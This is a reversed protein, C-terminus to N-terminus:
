NVIIYTGAAPLFYSTKPAEPVLTAFSFNQPRQGWIKGQPTTKVDPPHPRKKMGPPDGMKSSLPPHGGQGGGQERIILRNGKSKDLVHPYIVDNLCAMDGLRFRCVCWWDFIHGM